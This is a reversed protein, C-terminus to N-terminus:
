CSYTSGVTVSPWAATSNMKVRQVGDVSLILKHVSGCLFVTAWHQDIVATNRNISPMLHSMSISLPLFPSEIIYVWRQKFTMNHTKQVVANVQTVESNRVHLEITPMATLPNIFYFDCCPSPPYLWWHVFINWSSLNWSPVPMRAIVRLWKHCMPTALFATLSQVLLFCLSYQSDKVSSLCAFPSICPGEALLVFSRNLSLLSWNLHTTPSSVPCQWRFPCRELNPSTLSGMQSLHWSSSDAVCIRHSQSATVLILNRWRPWNKM